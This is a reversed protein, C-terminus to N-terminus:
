IFHMLSLVMGSKSCASSGNRAGQMRQEVVKPKTGTQKAQSQVASTYSGSGAAQMQKCSFKVGGTTDPLNGAFATKKSKALFLAPPNDLHPIEISKANGNVTTEASTLKNWSGAPLRKITEGEKNLKAEGSNQGDDDKFDQIQLKKIKLGSYDREKEQEFEKAWEEEEPEVAKFKSADTTGSSVAAEEKKEPVKKAVASSATPPTATPITTVDAKNFKSTFSDPTYKKIKSKTKDKKAFFNDLQDDMKETFSSAHVVAALPV